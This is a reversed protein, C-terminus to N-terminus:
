NQERSAELRTAGLFIMPNRPGSLQVSSQRRTSALKCSGLPEIGTERKIELNLRANERSSPVEEPSLIWAQPL